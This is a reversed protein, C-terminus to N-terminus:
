LALIKDFLKKVSVLLKLQSATYKLMYCITYMVCALLKGQEKRTIILLLPREWFVTDLNTLSFSLTSIM